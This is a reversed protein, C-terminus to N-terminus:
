PTWFLPLPPRIATLPQTHSLPHRRMRLCRELREEEKSEDSGGKTFKTPSQKQLRRLNSEYADSIQTANATASHNFHSQDTGPCTTTTNSTFSTISILELHKSNDHRRQTSSSTTARLHHHPQHIQEHHRHHHQHNSHIPRVPVADRMSRPSSPCTTWTTRQGSIFTCTADILTNMYDHQLRRDYIIIIM